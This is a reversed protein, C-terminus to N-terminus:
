QCNVKSYCFEGWEQMIKRQELELKSRDYSTGLPNLNSHLLCLEAAEQDFRRNNGLEDDKAWTRFSARSTGHVTIVCEKGLRKSKVPDIWGIGDIKKKAVHLRKLIMALTTDALVKSSYNSPFVLKNIKPVSKLLAIAQDSLMITRYRNKTKVKDHEMPITWTKKNFDFEDWTAFRVASSRATTLIAFETARASTSSLSHIEYILQPIEKFDAASFNDSEKRNNKYAQLLIGLPGDLRAPNERITILKTAMAWDIMQKLYSRLKNATAPKEQWIPRLIDKVTEFTLSDVPTNGWKLLLHKRIVFWTDTYGKKNNIWYNGNQREELWEITLEQLTLTTSDDLSKKNAEQKKEIPDIGNSLDLRAEMALKKAQSLSIQDRSGLSFERRVLNKDSYRLTYLASNKRIRLYLGTVGGLPYFGDKSLKKVELATLEKVKKAM